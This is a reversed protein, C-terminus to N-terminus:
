DASFRGTPQMCSKSGGTSGASSSSHHTGAKAIHLKAKGSVSNSSDLGGEVIRAGKFGALVAQEVLATTREKKWATGYMMRPMKVGSGAATAAAAAGASAMSPLLTPPM